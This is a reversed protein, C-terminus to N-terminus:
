MKYDQEASIVPDCGIEKDHIGKGQLVDKKCVSPRVGSFSYKKVQKERMMEAVTQNAHFTIPKHIVGNLYSKVKRVEEVQREVSLNKHIVGLGGLRAMAIAMAGETVTDMAASVIPINLTINRSFRAVTSVERPLVESYAPVLLVDDFTLGTPLVRENIFSM